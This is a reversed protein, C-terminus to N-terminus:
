RRGSVIGAYFVVARRATEGGVLVAVALMLWYKRRYKSIWRVDNTLVLRRGTWYAAVPDGPNLLAYEGELVRGTGLCGGRGPVIARIHVEHRVFQTDARGDVSNWRKKVVQGDLHMWSVRDPQGRLFPMGELAYLLVAVTVAVGGVIRFIERGNPKMSETGM